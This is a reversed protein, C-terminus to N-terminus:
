IMDEDEKDPKVSIRQAREGDIYVDFIQIISDDLTYYTKDTVTNGSVTYSAESVRTEACFEKNAQNLLKIIRNDSVEPHSEKIIEIMEKLDM